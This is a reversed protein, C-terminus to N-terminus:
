RRISSSRSLAPRSRGTRATAIGRRFRAPLDHAARRTLPELRQPVCQTRRPLRPQHMPQEHEGGGPDGFPQRRTTIIDSGLETTDALNVVFPETITYIGAPKKALAKEDVPAPAPKLVFMYVGGLVVLLVPVIMMIMKKNM